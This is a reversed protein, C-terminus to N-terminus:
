REISPSPPLRMVGFTIGQPDAIIALEDGDPLRQPPVIVTAGHAQARAVCASVDEVGIFLQVVPTGEPPAPWIGGAIGAPGTSIARYGLANNRDIGWGFAEQYFRAAADPDRALVQFQIVPAPMREEEPNDDIPASIPEIYRSGSAIMAAQHSSM